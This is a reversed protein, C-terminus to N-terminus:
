KQQCDKLGICYGILYSRYIKYALEQKMSEAEKPVNKLDALAMDMFHNAIEESVGQMEVILEESSPMKFNTM